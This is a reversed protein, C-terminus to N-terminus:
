STCKIYEVESYKFLIYFYTKGKDCIAIYFYKARSPNYNSFFYSNQDLLLRFEVTSVTYFTAFISEEDFGRLIRNGGLRFQENRYVDEKSILWRSRVRGMITSRTFVPLFAM